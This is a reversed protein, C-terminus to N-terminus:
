ADEEAMQWDHDQDSPMRSSSSKPRARMVQTPDSPSELPSRRLEVDERIMLIMQPRTKFPGKEGPLAEVDMGRQICEIRLQDATMLALGKPLWNHPDEEEESQKRARRIKERITVVTEKAARARTMGLERQAVEVLDDKTMLWISEKKKGVMAALRVNETKLAANLVLVTVLQWQQFAYKLLSCMLRLTM